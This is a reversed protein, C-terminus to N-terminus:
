KGSKVLKKVEKPDVMYEFALPRSVVVRVTLSKLGEPLNLTPTYSRRGGSSGRWGNSKIEIKKGNEDQAYFELEDNQQLNRTEIFLFPKTSSLREVMNRGDSTTGHSESTAPGMFRTVGNSIVFEGAGSIVMLNLNAGACDASQDVSIFKGAEPVVLNTVVLQEGATFDELRSRYVLTQLKWAKEQLSLFQGSNGTADSLMVSRAKAKVWAPDSSEIRWSPNAYRWDEGGTEKLGNLTLTVPGNTQTQPLPLPKWEPFSGTIPNPVRLTGMVVGKLDLLHFLFERDRRPFARMNFGYVRNGSAGGFSSYGGDRGYRFGSADETIYYQWPLSNVNSGMPTTVSLYIGAENTGSTCSGAIPLPIWNQFRNPLYRRALIQWRTDTTFQQNGVTTGLFEVRTGDTLIIKRTQDTRWARWGGVVVVGVIGIVLAIIIARKLGKSKQKNGEM